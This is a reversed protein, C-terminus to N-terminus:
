AQLDSPADLAEREKKLAARDVSRDAEHLITVAMKCTQERLWAALAEEEGLQWGKRALECYVRLVTEEALHPAQVIRLATTYVEGLSSAVLERLADESQYQLYAKLLIEPKM